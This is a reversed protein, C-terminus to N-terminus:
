LLFLGLFFFVIVSLLTMKGSRKPVKKWSRYDRHAPTGIGQPRSVKSWWTEIDMGLVM